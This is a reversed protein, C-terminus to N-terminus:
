KDSNLYLAYNFWAIGCAALASETRLDIKKRDLSFFLNRVTELPSAQEMQFIKLGPKFHAYGHAANTVAHIVRLRKFRLMEENTPARELYREYFALGAEKTMVQDNCFNAVDYDKPGYGACEWDIIFLKKGDYLINRMHLDNHNIALDTGLEWVLCDALMKQIESSLTSVQPTSIFKKVYFLDNRKTVVDADPKLKQISRLHGLMQNMMEDSSTMLGPCFEAPFLSDIKEMIILGTEANMYLIDPCIGAKNAEMLIAIEQQIGKPGFVGGTRRVIYQKNNYHLIYLHGGSFGGGLPELTLPASTKLAQSVEEVSVEPPLYQGWVIEHQESAVLQSCLMLILILYQM